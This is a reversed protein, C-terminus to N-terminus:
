WDHLFSAEHFGLARIVFLEIGDDDADPLGGLGQGDGKALSAPLGSYDLSLVYAAGADIEAARGGLGHGGAGPHRIEGPAGAVVAHARPRHLDIQCAHQLALIRDYATEAVAHPLRDFARVVDFENEPVDGEFARM